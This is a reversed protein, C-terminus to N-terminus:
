EHEEKFKEQLEVTRLCFEKITALKESDSKEKDLYELVMGAVSKMGISMGSLQFKRLQMDMKNTFKDVKEKDGMKQEQNSVAKKKNM